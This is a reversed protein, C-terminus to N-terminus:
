DIKISIYIYIYICDAPRNLFVCSRTLGQSKKLFREFHPARILFDLKLFKLFITLTQLKLDAQFVNGPDLKKFASTPRDWSNLKPSSTTFCLLLSWIVIQSAEMKSFPAKLAQTGSERDLIPFRFVDIFISPKMFYISSSVDSYMPKSWLKARQPLIKRKNAPYM